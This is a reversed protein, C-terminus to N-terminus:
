PGSAQRLPRVGSNDITYAGERGTGETETGGPGNADAWLVFLPRGPEWDEFELRASLPTEGVSPAPAFHSSFAPILRWSGPAGTVSFFARHGFVQENEQAMWSGHDYFLEIERM